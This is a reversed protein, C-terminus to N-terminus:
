SLAAKEVAEFSFPLRADGSATEVSLVGVVRFAARSAELLGSGREAAKLPLDLTRELAVTPGPPITTGCEQFSRGLLVGDAYVSYDIRKLRTPVSSRNRAVLQAEITVRNPGAEIVWGEEKELKVVSRASNRKTAEKHLIAVSVLSMIVSILLLNLFITMASLESNSVPGVQMAFGVALM